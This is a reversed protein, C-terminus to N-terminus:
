CNLNCDKRNSLKPYDENSFTFTYFEPNTFPSLFYRFLLARIKESSIDLLSKSLILEQDNTKNGVSHVAAAELTSNTYDIM